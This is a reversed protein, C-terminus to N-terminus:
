GKLDEKLDEFSKDKAAERRIRWGPVVIREVPVEVIEELM